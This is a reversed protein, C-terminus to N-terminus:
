RYLELEKYDEGSVLPIGEVTVTDGRVVVEGSLAGGDWRWKLTEGDHLAFHRPRRPTVSVTIERPQDPVGGGFDTHREYRLPFVIRSAEDVILPHNWLIGLNYHGRPFETRDIRDRARLPFNGTSSTIAPHARDLTVDQEPVEFRAVDPMRLGREFTTEGGKVWAFAGGIRHREVLNVFKLQTDDDSGGSDTDNSGFVHRYHLGRVIPDVTSQVRFDISEWLTRHDTDDPPLNSLGTHERSILRPLVPGAHTTTYAILRRWPDPLIMTQIVAGAGGMGRGELVIGRSDPEIGYRERLFTLTAAIRRGPYPVGDAGAIWGERWGPKYTGADQTRVEIDGLKSPAFVQVARDGAAAGHMSVVIRPNSPLPDRRAYAWKFDTGFPGYSPRAGVALTGPYFAWWAGRVSPERPARVAPGDPPRNRRGDKGAHEAPPMREGAPPTQVPRPLPASDPRQPSAEAPPEDAVESEGRRIRKYREWVSADAVLLGSGSFGAPDTGQALVSAGVSEAWLLSGLGLM